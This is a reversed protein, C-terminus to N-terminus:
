DREKIDSFRIKPPVPYDDCEGDLIDIDGKTTLIKTVVGNRMHVGTIRANNFLKIFHAPNRFQGPKSKDWDNQAIYEETIPSGSPTEIYTPKRIFDEDSM